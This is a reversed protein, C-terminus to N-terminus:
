GKKWKMYRSFEDEFNPTFLSSGLNETIESIEWFRGESIESEQLIFPGDCIMRFAQIYESERESRMIYEYLFEPEALDIGLEEGAERKAASLYDEGQDLHGGVSTDWKGPQIDKDPSRKQLFIRGASDEIMIHIARHLLDPNSHCEKRGASGIVRNNEDVLDFTEM